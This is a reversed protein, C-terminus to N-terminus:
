AKSMTKKWRFYGYVSLAGYVAFLAATPYMDKYFYLGASAFNIFIWLLWHELIKRALLWTAVVSLATTLSDGLPIPSDTYSTLVYFIAFFLVAAIPTLLLWQGRSARSIPLEKSETKGGFKWAYFGYVSMLVYYVNMGMDAYFKHQFFIAVYVLSSIFGVVWMLPNQKLELWLYLLAFVVGFLEVGWVGWLPALFDAINEFISLMREAKLLGM